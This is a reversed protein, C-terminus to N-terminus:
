AAINVSSKSIFSNAFGDKFMWVLGAVCSLTGGSVLFIRKWNRKAQKTTKKRILLEPIFNLDPYVENLQCRLHVLEDYLREVSVFAKKSNARLELIHIPDQSDLVINRDESIRDSVYGVSSGIFGTHKKISCVMAVAEACSIKRTYHAESSPTPKQKHTDRIAALIKKRTDPKTVGMQCLDAETMQLFISFTVQQSHFLPILDKLDLGFLFLDLEDCSAVETGQNQPAVRSTNDSTQRPLKEVAAPKDSASPTKSNFSNPGLLEVIQTHGNAMALEDVTRGDFTKKNLDVSAALLLQVVKVHGRQAALMLASYGKNDQNNLLSNSDILKKVVSARGERSAYLIPSMRFRDTTNVDAGNEILRSVCDLVAQEDDAKSACACMLVTYNEKHSNANAGHKLLCKVMDPLASNAAYMLATWGTKFGSDVDRGKVLFEEVEAIKGHMVSSRFEDLIVEDAHQATEFQRKADVSTESRSSSPKSPNRDHRHRLARRNVVEPETSM